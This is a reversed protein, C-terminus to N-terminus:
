AFPRYKIQKPFIGFPHFITAWYTLAPTSFSSSEILTGAARCPSITSCHRITRNHNDKYLYFM